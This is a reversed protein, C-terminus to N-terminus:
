AVRLRAGEPIYRVRLIDGLLTDVSLTITDRDVKTAVAAVLPDAATAAGHVVPVATAAHAVPVATAAHAVPVATAAHAQAAPLPDVAAPNTQGGGASELPGPIVPETVASGGGAAIVTTIDHGHVPHDDIAAVVAAAAHDDIAAVVAAAAHDDVAAIVAAPLHDPLAFGSGVRVIEASIIADIGPAYSPLNIPNPTAIAGPVWQETHIGEFM